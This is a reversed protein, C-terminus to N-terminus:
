NTTQGVKDAFAAYTAVDQEVLADFAAPSMPWPEVGMRALRDKVKRDAV